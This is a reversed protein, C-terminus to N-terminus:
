EWSRQRRREPNASSMFFQVSFNAVM